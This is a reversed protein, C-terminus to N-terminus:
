VLELLSSSNASGPVRRITLIAETSVSLSFSVLAVTPYKSIDVDWMHRDLTGSGSSWCVVGTFAVLLM